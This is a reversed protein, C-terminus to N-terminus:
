LDAKAMDGFASILLEAGGDEPAAMLYEPNIGDL